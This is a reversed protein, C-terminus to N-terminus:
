AQNAEDMTADRHQYLITSKKKKNNSENIPLAIKRKKSKEYM